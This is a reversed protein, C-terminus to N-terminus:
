LTGLSATASTKMGIEVDVPPDLSLPSITRDRM